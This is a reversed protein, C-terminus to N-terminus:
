ITTFSSLNKISLEYFKFMDTKIYSGYSIHIDILFSISSVFWTISFVRFFMKNEFEGKFKLLVILLKGIIFFLISLFIPGFSFFVISNVLAGFIFLLLSLKNINM